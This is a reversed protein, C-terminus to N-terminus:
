CSGTGEGSKLLKVSLRATRFFLSSNPNVIDYTNGPSVVNTPYVPDLGIFISYSSVKGIGGYRRLSVRFSAM